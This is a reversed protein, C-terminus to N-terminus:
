LLLLPIQRLEVALPYALSHMANQRADKASLVLLDVKRSNIQHRYENVLESFIVLSSVELGPNQKKLIEACSLFYEEPEKLLQEGLRKRATNTDMVEIKSIADMYRDFVHVDEVHTLYLNGNPNTFAAAYNILRDNVALMDTVVMVDSTDHLAHGAQYNAQPHPLVMVPLETKQLIVDLHEGLSHPFRWADSHLNRYTAILDPTYQSLLELLDNTTQYEDGTIVFFQRDADNEPYRLFAMIENQFLQAAEAKLDTVLLVSNIEIKHYEYIDKLASRFVSEFQDINSL